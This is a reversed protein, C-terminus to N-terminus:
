LPLGQATFLLNAACCPRNSKQVTMHQPSKFEILVKQNNGQAGSFRRLLTHSKRSDTHTDYRRLLQSSSILLQHLKTPIHKITSM